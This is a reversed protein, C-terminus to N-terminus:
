RLLIPHLRDSLRDGFVYGLSKLFHVQPDREEYLYQSYKDCYAIMLFPGNEFNPLPTAPLYFSGSGEELSIVFTGLLNNICSHENLEQCKEPIWQDFALRIPKKQILEFALSVLRKSQVIKKVDDDKRWLDRGQDFPSKKRNLLKITNLIALEKPDLLDAFSIWGNTRFFERQEQSIAFKMRM